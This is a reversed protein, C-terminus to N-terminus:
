RFVLATVYVDHREWADTVPIKFKSGAKATIAQVYVMRDTEVMLLGPGEHPPTVTVELTDGAKYATKDLALKVKDPRADLGRNQDDWSWGARFPYRTTIKTQPDFVDLRYEGWEVQFSLKSANAGLDVSRTEV